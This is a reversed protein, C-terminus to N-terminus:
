SDRPSPSTYLLCAHYQNVFISDVNLDTISPDEFRALAIRAAQVEVPNLVSRHIIAQTTKM